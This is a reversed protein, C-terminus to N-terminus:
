QGRLRIGRSTDAPVLDFPSKSMAAGLHQLTAQPIVKALDFGNFTERDAAVVVLPVTTPRGTAPDITDVGVTLAISHVKGARDAEFVEHLSRVAVQWVANAYREKKERVPLDSSAIEDTAKVYRYGKVSPVTSPEPVNVALTLERSALNFAHDHEIPFVEPYVSNSLVIGVYEQIAAEVDFALDNILKTLEANRTSAETERKDYEQKYKEEAASLEAMRKAEMKERQALEAIYRKYLAHGVREWEGHANEFAIRAGEVAQQHRKKGGIVASIGSPAAPEQYVPEPAYKPEVITPSPVALGGPKFPPHEVKSIKLSELDVYDDIGLTWALLGDIDALDRALDTNMSEVEALRSELQLRAAEREAAKKETASARAAAAQAREYSKQAREAERQAALHARHATAQQQRRHKEAQQAQYNLEAILGRRKGM